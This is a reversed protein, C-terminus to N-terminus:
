DEGDFAEFGKKVVINERKISKVFVFIAVAIGLCVLAYLPLFSFDFGPILLLSGLAIPTVTQAAM